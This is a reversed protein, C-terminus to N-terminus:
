DQLDAMTGWIKHYAHLKDRQDPTAAIENKFNGYDVSWALTSFIYAIHRSSEPLRIRYRYDADPWTEIKPLVGEGAEAMLNELDRKRRARIHYYEDKLVISFWGM